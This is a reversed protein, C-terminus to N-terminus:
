CFLYKWKHNYLIRYLFTIMTGAIVKHFTVAIQSTIESSTAISKPSSLQLNRKQPATQATPTQSGEFNIVQRADVQHLPISTLTNQPPCQPLLSNPQAGGNKSRNRDWRGYRIRNWEIVKTPLIPNWKKEIIQRYSETYWLTWTTWAHPNLSLEAWWNLENRYFIIYIWVIYYIYYFM